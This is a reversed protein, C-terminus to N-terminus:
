QINMYSKTVLYAITLVAGTLVMTGAIRYKEISRTRLENKVKEELCDVDLEEIREVDLEEIKEM